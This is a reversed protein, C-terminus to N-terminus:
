FRRKIELLSEILDPEPLAGLLGTKYKQQINSTDRVGENAKFDSLSYLYNSKEDKHIFWIQEKRLLRNCDMLNIDHVTFILQANDNLENNFMAVISRTLKFHISSDLEDIVLIKGEELSEIIYSALAVIKKTGTSDFILSPVPVGKYISTLRIQDIISERIKLLDEAPSENSIDKGIKIEDDSLYKFDDLYLDSNKVFNVIKERLKDGNKMIDMTKKIPINNM